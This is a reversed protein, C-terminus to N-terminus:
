EPKAAPPVPRTVHLREITIRTPALTLGLTRELVKGAAAPDRPADKISIVRHGALGTEDRVPARLADALYGVFIKMEAGDSEFMFVDHDYKHRWSTAGAQANPPTRADDAAKRLAYGDVEERRKECSSGFSAVVFARAADAAENQLGRGRFYVLDYKGEDLWAEGVIAHERIGWLTALVERPSAKMLTVGSGGIMAGGGISAEGSKRLIVQGEPFEAGLMSYPDIGPIIVSIAPRIRRKDDKERTDIKGSLYGEFRDGTLATPYTVAVIIGDRVVFTTPWGTVGYSRAMVRETDHGILSKMPRKQLFAAIVEPTEYTVSLFRVGKPGFQEALDNLHPIAAVCPGCWTGWFELVTVGPLADWTLPAPADGNTVATLSIPPAADGPQPPRPPEQTVMAERPPAAREPEPPDALSSIMAAAATLLASSIWTTM